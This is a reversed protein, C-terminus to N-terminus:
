VLAIPPWDFPLPIHSTFAAPPRAPPSHPLADDLNLQLEVVLMNFVPHYHGDHHGDDHHASPTTDADDDDRDAMDAGDDHHHDHDDHAHVHFGTASAPDDLHGPVSAMASWAFQLPVLLMLLVALFRRM